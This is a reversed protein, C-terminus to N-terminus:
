SFLMGKKKLSVLTVIQFVLVVSFLSWFLYGKLIMLGSLCSLILYLNIFLQSNIISVTAPIIAKVEDYNKLAVKSANILFPLTLLATASWVGGNGLVPNIIMFLVMLLILGIVVYAAKKRGIRVAMTMKGALKDGKYDPFENIILILAIIIALPISAMVSSISFTATQVYYAGAVLLIGFDLGVIIEGFGLNLLSFRPSVYLISSIIGFLGIPILYPGSQTYLYYGIVIAISYCIISAILVQKAPIDGDKIVRSGGSFPYISEDNKEDAGSVHDFYDNILNAGLHVITAGIITLLFLKIEFIGREYYALVSGYAAPLISATIVFLRGARLWKNM